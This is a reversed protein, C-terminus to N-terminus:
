NFNGPKFLNKTLVSFYKQKYVKKDKFIESKLKNKIYFNYGKQFFDSGREWCGGELISIGNFGEKKFGGGGASLRPPICLIVYFQEIGM